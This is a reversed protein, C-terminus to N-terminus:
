ESGPSIVHLTNFYNVLLTKYTGGIKAINKVTMDM